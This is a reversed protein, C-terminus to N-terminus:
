KNKVVYKQQPSNLFEPITRELYGEDVLYDVLRDRNKSHNTVGIHVLIERSSRPIVCFALVEKQKDSLCQKTDLNASANLRKCTIWVIYMMVMNQSQCDLRKVLTQKESNFMKVNASLKCM